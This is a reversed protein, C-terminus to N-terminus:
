AALAAKLLESRRSAEKLIDALAEVTPRLAARVAAIRAKWDHSRQLRPFALAMAHLMTLRESLSLTELWALIEPSSPDSM